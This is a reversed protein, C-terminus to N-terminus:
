RRSVPAERVRRERTQALQADPRDDRQQVVAAARAVRAQEVGAKGLLEGRVRTGDRFPVRPDLVVSGHVLREGGRPERRQVAVPIRVGFVVRREDAREQVLAFSGHAGHALDAGHVRSRPEHLGVVGAFGKGGLAERVLRAEFVLPPPEREVKERPADHGLM